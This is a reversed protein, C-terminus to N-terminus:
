FVGHEIRGLEALVDGIGALDGLMDVPRNGSLTPRPADLWRRFKRVDGFVEKGREMVQMILEVRESQLPDFSTNQKIPAQLTRPTVYVVSAWENLELPTNKLITGFRKGKVVSTAFHVRKEALRVATHLVYTGRHIDQGKSRQESEKRIVVTKGM